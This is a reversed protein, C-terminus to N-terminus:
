FVLAEYARADVDPLSLQVRLEADDAHLGASALARAAAPFHYRLHLAQGHGGQDPARVAVVHAQSGARSPLAQWAREAHLDGDFHDLILPPRPPDAKAPGPETASGFSVVLGLLAMMTSLVFFIKRV